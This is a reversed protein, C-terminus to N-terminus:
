TIYRTRTAGRLFITYSNIERFTQSTKRRPFGNFTVILLQQAYYAHFIYAFTYKLRGLRLTPDFTIEIRTVSYLM